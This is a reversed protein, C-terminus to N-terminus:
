GKSLRSRVLRLLPRERPLRSGGWPTTGHRRRRTAARRRRRTPAGAKTGLLLRVAIRGQASEDLTYSWGRGGRVIIRDPKVTVKSVVSFPNPDKYKYGSAGLPTWHIAPLNVSVDDTSLGASNYVVLAGGSSTPDNTGGQPPPTVRNSSPDSTTVAKFSLHRPAPPTDKL